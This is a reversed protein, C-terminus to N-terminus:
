LPNMGQKLFNYVFQINIQFNQIFNGLFLFGAICQIREKQSDISRTKNPKFKQDQIGFDHVLKLKPKKITQKNISCKRSKEFIGDKNSENEKKQKNQQDM